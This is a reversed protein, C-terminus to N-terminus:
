SSTTLLSLFCHASSYARIIGVFTSVFTKLSVLEKEKGEKQKKKLTGM